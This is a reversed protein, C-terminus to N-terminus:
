QQQDNLDIHQPEEQNPSSDIHGTYDKDQPMDESGGNSM